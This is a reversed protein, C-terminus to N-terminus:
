QDDIYFGDRWYLLRSSITELLGEGRMLGDMLCVTLQGPLQVQHLINIIIKYLYVIVEITILPLFM